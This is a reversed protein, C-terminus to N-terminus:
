RLSQQVEHLAKLPYTFSELLPRSSTARNREESDRLQMESLKSETIDRIVGRMKLAERADFELRGM